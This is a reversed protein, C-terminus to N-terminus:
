HLATFLQFVDNVQFIVGYYLYMPNLKSPFSDRYTESM